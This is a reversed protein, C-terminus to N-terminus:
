PKVREFTRGLRDVLADLHERSLDQHCPLQFVHRSWPLGHDGPLAPTGPWLWDWRFVPFREAKLLSYRGDPNEVWLPFVYPVATPPLEPLL